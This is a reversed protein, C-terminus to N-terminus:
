ANNEGKCDLEILISEWGGHSECYENFEKEYQEYIERDEEPVTWCDGYPCKSCCWCHYDYKECKPYKKFLPNEPPEFPTGDEFYISDTM